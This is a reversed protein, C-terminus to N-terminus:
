ETPCKMKLHPIFTITKLESLTTRGLFANYNNDIYVVYFKVM